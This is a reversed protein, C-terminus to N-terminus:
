MAEAAHRVEDPHARFWKITRELGDDMSTRPAWMLRRRALSIDPKRRMPDDIPIELEIEQYKVGTLRAIKWALEEITYETDNGLNVPGSIGSHILKVFGEILDDVYCLSRTQQGGYVTFPHGSLAQVIFNTVVRGDDARMRPGYTNFIRAIAVNCGERGYASTIAESFRKAEDYMSRPGIPNVNGKYTELQPHVEPDGYVESTSALVFRARKSRALQLANETGRSGARLTHLPKAQYAPPSALSAMHVIVDIRGLHDGVGVLPGDRSVDADCVDFKPDGTLHAVNQYRGSSFDDVALVDYGEALLRDALHSGLFGCGGTIVAQM